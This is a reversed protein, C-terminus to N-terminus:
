DHDYESTEVGDRTVTVEVHDGFLEEYTETDILKHFEKVAEAAAKIPGDPCNYSMCYFSDEEGDNYTYAHEESPTETFRFELENVDFECTDGDNFYPTYQSWRFAVLIPHEDFVAKCADSFLVKGKDMAKAKAEAIEAKLEEMQSKIQDISM